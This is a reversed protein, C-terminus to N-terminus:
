HLTFLLCEFMLLDKFCVFLDPCFRRLARSTRRAQGLLGTDREGEGDVNKKKKWVFFIAFISFVLFLFHSLSVWFCFLSILIDSAFLISFPKYISSLPLATLSRPWPLSSRSRQNLATPNSFLSSGGRSEYTKEKKKKKKKQPSNM